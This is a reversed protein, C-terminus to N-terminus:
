GLSGSGRRDHGVLRADVWREAEEVTEVVVHEVKMPQIWLVAVLAARITASSIVFAIGVCRDRVEPATRATMAALLRRRSASPLEADRFDYVIAYRSLRRSCAEIEAFYARLSDDDPKGNWVVRVVEGDVSIRITM